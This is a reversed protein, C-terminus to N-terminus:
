TAISDLAVVLEHVAWAAAMYATYSVAGVLTKLGPLTSIIALVALGIPFLVFVFVTGTGLGACLRDYENVFSDGNCNAEPDNPDPYASRYYSWDLANESAPYAWRIPALYRVVACTYRHVGSRVYFRLVEGPTSYQACTPPIETLARILEAKSVTNIPTYSMPPLLGLSKGTILKYLEGVAARLADYDVTFAARFINLVGVSINITDLVPELHQRMIPCALIIVARVGMLALGGFLLFLLLYGVAGLSLLFLILGAVLELCGRVLALLIWRVRKLATSADKELENDLTKKYRHAVDAFM